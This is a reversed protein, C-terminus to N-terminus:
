SLIEWHDGKDGGVRRLIGKLKLRKIHYNVGDRKIGCKQAIEEISIENNDKILEIIKQTTKQTTEDTTQDEQTASLEAGIAKGTQIAIFKERHISVLIGGRTQEFSAQIM